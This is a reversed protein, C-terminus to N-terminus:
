WDLGREGLNIKNKCLPCQIFYSTITMCLVYDMKKSKQIDSQEYELISKCNKCQTRIPAPNNVLKVM